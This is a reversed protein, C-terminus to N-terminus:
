RGTVTVAIDAPPLCQRDSCLQYHLTVPAAKGAALPRTLRFRRTFTATKEHYAVVTGFTKDKRKVLADETTPGLPTGGPWAAIGTPVPGTGSRVVSYLHWGPDIRAQVTVTVIHGAAATRPSVSAAFRAPLPSITHAATSLLPCSSMLILAVTHQTLMDAEVASLGKSTGNQFTQFM